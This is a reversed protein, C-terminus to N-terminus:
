TLLKHKLMSKSTRLSQMTDNALTSTINKCWEESPQGYCGEMKWKFQQIEDVRASKFYYSVDQQLEDGTVGGLLHILCKRIRNM